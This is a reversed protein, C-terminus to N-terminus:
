SSSKRYLVESSEESVLHLIHPNNKELYKLEDIGIHVGEIATSDSIAKLISEKRKAPDKLYPNTQKLSKKSM